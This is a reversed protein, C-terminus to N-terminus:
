NPNGREFHDKVAERTWPRRSIIIEDVAGKLFFSPAADLMGAAGVLVKSDMIDLLYNKHMYLSPDTSVIYDNPHDEHGNWGNSSVVLILPASGDGPDHSIVIKGGTGFTSSDALKGNVYWSIKPGDAVLAFQTWRGATLDQGAYSFAMSGVEAKLSNGQAYVIFVAYNSWLSKSVVTQLGTLVDFKVWGAVTFDSSGPSLKLIENGPVMLYSTFGNFVMSRDFRKWRGSNRWEPANVMVANYDVPKFGDFGCGVAGNLVVDCMGVPTEMRVDPNQFNFNLVLDPDRSLGNNYGFWRISKAKFKANYLLPLTLGLLIFM